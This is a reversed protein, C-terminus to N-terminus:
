ESFRDRYRDTVRTVEFRGPMGRFRPGAQAPIRLIPDAAASM